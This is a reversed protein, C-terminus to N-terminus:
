DITLALAGTCGPKKSGVPLRRSFYVQADNRPVKFSLLVTAHKASPKADGTHSSNASGNSSSDAPIAAAGGGGCGTLTLASLASL